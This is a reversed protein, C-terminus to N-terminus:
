IFITDTIISPEGSHPHSVYGKTVGGVTNGVQGVTGGVISCDILRWYLGRLVPMELPPKLKKGTDTVGKLLGAM